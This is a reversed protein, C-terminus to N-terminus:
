ATSSGHRGGQPEDSGRLDYMIMSFFAAVGFIPSNWGEQLGVTTALAAVSAAHSSPMGGTGTLRQFDVRRHAILTIAFKMIQVTVLALVALVLPPNLAILADIRSM